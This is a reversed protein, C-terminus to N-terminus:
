ALAKDLAALVRDPEFPKVVFDKAGAKIADMVVSEQGLATLMVIRAAPDSSTIQKLAELGDMEPMTIDMLVIDPAESQYMEIAKAGNEAQIVEHGNETLLKSIRVRLFEADDVVLIKAM